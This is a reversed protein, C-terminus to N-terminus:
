CTSRACGMLAALRIANRAYDSFVLFTGGFPIFGGHLGIGSLMATMGFERVGYHHLQRGQRATHHRVGELQDPELRHPGGIRRLVRASPPSRRIANQSAKRTAIPDTVKRRGSM